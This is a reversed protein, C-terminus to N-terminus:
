DAHGAIKMQHVPRIFQELNCSGPDQLPPFEVDTWNRLWLAQCIPLM